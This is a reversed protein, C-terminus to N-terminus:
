EIGLADQVRVALKRLCELGADVAEQMEILADAAGSLEEYLEETYARKPVRKLAAKKGAFWVEHNALWQKTNLQIDHLAVAPSPIKKPDPTRGGRSRKCGILNQVQTRVKRVSWSEALCQKLVANREKAGEISLLCSVHFLTLPKGKKNRKKTWAKAQARTLCSAIKRYEWMQNTLQKDDRSRGPNLFDALLDAVGDGYTRKDSKPFFASVRDGIEYWRLVGEDETRNYWKRLETLAKKLKAREKAPQAAIWARIDAYKPDATKRKKAM